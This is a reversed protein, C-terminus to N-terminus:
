SVDENDGWFGESKSVFCMYTYELGWHLDSVTSMDNEIGPQRM